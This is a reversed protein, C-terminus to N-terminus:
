ARAGSSESITLELERSKDLLLASAFASRYTSIFSFPFRPLENLRSSLSSHYLVSYCRFLLLFFFCFFYHIFFSLCRSSPFALYFLFPLLSSHIHLAHLSFLSLSPLFYTFSLPLSAALRLTTSVRPRTSVRADFASRCPRRCSPSPFVYRPTHQRLVPRSIVLQWSAHLTSPNAIGNGAATTHTFPSFSPSFAREDRPNTESGWVM